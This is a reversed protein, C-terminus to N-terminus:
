FAPSYNALFERRAKAEHKRYVLAAAAIGAARLLASVLMWFVIHEGIGDRIIYYNLWSTFFVSPVIRWLLATQLRIKVM